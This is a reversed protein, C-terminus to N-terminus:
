CGAGVLGVVNGRSDRVPSYGSLTHAGSMPSFEKDVSTTSFGNLMEPNVSPIRSGSPPQMRTSGTIMMLLLVVGTATRECSISM